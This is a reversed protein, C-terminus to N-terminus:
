NASPNWAVLFAVAHGNEALAENEDCLDMVDEDARMRRGIEHELMRRLEANSYWAEPDYDHLLSDIDDIDSLDDANTYDDSM